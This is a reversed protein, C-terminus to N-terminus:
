LQLNKTKEVLNSENTKLNNTKDVLEYIKNLNVNNFAEKLQQQIKIEDEVFTSFNKYQSNELKLSALMISNELFNHKLLSLQKDLEQENEETYKIHDFYQPLLVHDPIIFYKRDLNNAAEMDDSMSLWINKFVEEKAQRLCENTEESANFKSLMADLANRLIKQLFYKRELSSQAATFGFHEIEYERDM